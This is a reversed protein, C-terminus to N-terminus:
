GPLYWTNRVEEVDPTLLNGDQGEAPGGCVQRVLEDLKKKSLVHDGEADHNYAPIRPVAPQNMVGGLTGSGQSITPRGATVGGGVAVGQPVATAKEPLQKPIPMRSQISAQQQTPHAHPHGQQHQAGSGMVAQNVGVASPTVVTPQQGQLPTNGPTTAARQNALSMAASHSLARTPGAATVPAPAPAQPVQARVAAQGPSTSQQAAQAQAAASALAANVPAPRPQEPKPVQTQGQPQIQPQSQAQVQQQIPQPTTSVPRPQSQAAVAPSAINAPQMRNGAALQQPNRGADSATIPAIPAQNVNQTKNGPTPVTVPPVTVSSTQSADAPKVPTPATVAAAQSAQAQAQAAGQLNGQQKRVGDVWKHAESYLKLQQDKRLQYQRLEEDKLPNGAQTRDSFLKEWSAVKNKSSEMTMLARAYREKMEEVWKAAEASSKDALQVPPRFTMKNVHQMLHDPIKPRQVAAAAATAAATATQVAPQQSQATTATTGTESSSPPQQPKPPQVQAQAQVQTQLQAQAQAPVVPKPVPTQSQQQQQVVPRSQQQQLQTPQQTQQQVQQQVAPRAQPQAPTQSPQQAQQQQQHLTRRQQIKGILMRSFDMIKQRAAIQDPSNTPSSNMKQWLGRLGQEYKSKEEESLFPLGKIHNPQYMSPRQQAAPAQQGQPQGQGPQAMAGQAPNM